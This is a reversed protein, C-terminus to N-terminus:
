APAGGVPESLAEAREEGARGVRMAIVAWVIAAPAALIAIPGVTLGVFALGAYIWGSVLDGGRYVAADIFAKSKYKEERSVVTFLVERAPKSLGYRGARYAVQVIVLTWLTPWVGLALFGAAVAVPVIALTVAVGLWKIIRATLYVEFLITLVNVVLDIRALFARREGRDTMTAYVLDSQAFYLVTSAFTMLAIFGAIGMLYRSQFVAKMGSLADGSLPKDSEGAGHVDGTAFGRHLMGACWSAVELPVCSILLLTFVPVRAALM